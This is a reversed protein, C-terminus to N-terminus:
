PRRGDVGEQRRRSCDGLKWRGLSVEKVRRRRAESALEVRNSKLAKKSGKSTQAAVCLGLMLIVVLNSVITRRM